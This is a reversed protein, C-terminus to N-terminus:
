FYKMYNFIGGHVYNNKKKGTTNAKKNKLFYFINQYTRQKYQRGHEPTGNSRDQDMKKSDQNKIELTGYM